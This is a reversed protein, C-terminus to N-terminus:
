VNYSEEFKLNLFFRLGRERDESVPFNRLCQSSQPRPIPNQLVQLNGLISFTPEPSQLRGLKFNTIGSALRITGSKVIRHVATWAIKEIEVENERRKELPPHLALFYIYFSFFVSRSRIFSYQM